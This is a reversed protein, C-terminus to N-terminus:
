SLASFGSFSLCKNIFWIVLGCDVELMQKTWGINKTNQDNQNHSKRETKKRDQGDQRASHLCLNSLIKTNEYSAWWFHGFVLNPFHSSYFLQQYFGKASVLFNRLGNDM